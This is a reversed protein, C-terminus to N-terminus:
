GSFIEKIKEILEASRYPKQIFGSLSKGAFRHKIDQINFGSTIIVPQNKRIRRIERLVEDGSLRPMSLDLIALVIEDANERFLDVAKQGDEATLVTFGCNELMRRSVDLVTDEDDALLITGSGSWKKETIKTDSSVDRQDDGEYVPFLVKFTTGEGPESYLKIAGNHSLIIGLVASLGLGRGTFKTTFFPDFLRSSTDENMGCGTDAVEIYIYMGESLEETMEVDRFYEKDCYVAGTTIAIIGSKEELAESANTILNMLIQRVQTADAMILPLEDALRFRLVAKKSISVELMHTLEVIVENLNLPVIEFSGRGSYALMQRSLEAARTAAIEIEKVSERASSTRPLSMLALDANGLITMLINNFDHAIGGALVGLSELKQSHQVQAQLLRREDEANKRETVDRIVAVVSDGSYPAIRAEFHCYGDPFELQYEVSRVEGTSFVTEICTFVEELKEDPLDLDRINSGIIRDRAIALEDEKRAMYELYTGDRSLVFMMDPMARLLAEKGHLSQKLEEQTNKLESIDLLSCVSKDTGPIMDIKLHIEKVKGDRDVFRFDYEDPASGPKKRRIDHYKKMRELDEPVVFETWNKKGEIESRSYGSLLEFGQNALSVVMDKEIIMMATGTNEFVARYREESARLAKESIHRQTIDLTIGGILPPKAERDIRFSHVEVILKNNEKDCVTKELFNYGNELTMRDAEIMQRAFKETYLEMPTKGAWEIESGFIEIFNDNVHLYKSNRDRIFVPGPFHDMFAELLLQSEKMAEISDNRSKKVEIGHLAYSIADVIEEFLDQQEKDMRFNKPLGASIIGFATGDHELRSTYSELHTYKETNLPCEECSSIIESSFVIGSRELACRVCRPFCGSEILKLMNGFDSGIGAEASNTLNGDRDMLLIWSYDYGEAETLLSCTNRILGAPDNERTILKDVNRISQIVNNLYEIREENKKRETVDRGVVVLDRRSGDDSFSPVKIIDFIHQTGDPESLPEDSRSLKGIEWTIEDTEECREFAPMYFSSDKGFDTEKKGRWDINELQFLRLAYENAELWRSEGDKLVILDPIVDILTRLRRESDELKKGSEKKETIDTLTGVIGLTKGDKDRILTNCMMAPFLTGDKRVHWVEGSYSGTELISRNIKDVEDMQEPIHFMSVHKGTFDDPTRGHAEAFASNCYLIMGELDIIAVSLVGQDLAQSLLIRRQKADLNLSEKKNAM